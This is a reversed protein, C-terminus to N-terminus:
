PCVERLWKRILELALSQFHEQVGSNNLISKIVGWGRKGVGEWKYVAFPLTVKSRLNLPSAMCTAHFGYAKTQENDLKVRFQIKLEIMM